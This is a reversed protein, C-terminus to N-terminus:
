RRYYWLIGGGLLLLGGIMAGARVARVKFYHGLSWYVKDRFSLLQRHVDGPVTSSGGYMEYLNMLRFRIEDHLQGVDNLVVGDQPFRDTYAVWLAALQDRAYEVSHEDGTTGATGLNGLTVVRM